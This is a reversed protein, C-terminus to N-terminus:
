TDTLMKRIKDSLLELITKKRPSWSSYNVCIHKNISPFKHVFECYNGGSKMCKDSSVGFQSRECHICNHCNIALGSTPDIQTNVLGELQARQQELNTM